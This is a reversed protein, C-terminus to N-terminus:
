SARLATTPDVRSARFAPIFGAFAGGTLLVATTVGFTLPDTPELRYLLSAAVRTLALAIFLGILLGLSVLSVTDILIKRQVEGPSAGLAMRIGIEQLRQTVSYSVVGYIGIVALLLAGAAFGGLLFTMFRRPSVSRDVLDGLQQFEETPLGPDVSQLARRVSPILAEPALTSRVVIDVSGSGSQAIPIYAELGGEQELALHRVNAVVGVVRREGAFVVLQGIPDRGPWLTKAAKDNVIVVKEGAANDRETFDRGAQLSIAM